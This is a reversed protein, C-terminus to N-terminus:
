NKEFLAVVHSPEVLPLGQFCLWEIPYSAISTLVCAFNKVRSAARPPQPESGNPGPGASRRHTILRLPKEFNSGKHFRVKMGLAEVASIWEDQKRPFVHASAHDAVNELMVFHGGPKLVRAVERLAKDQQAYPLHQIATVSNVIDFSESAMPLSALDACIFRHSPMQIRLKDVAADSIDVGTVHAGRAGYEKVWRGRGCGCDLVKVQTWDPIMQDLMEFPRKMGLRHAYDLFRSMVIQGPTIVPELEDAGRALADAHIKRYLDRMQEDSRKM